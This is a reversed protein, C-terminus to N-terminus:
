WNLNLLRLIKDWLPAFVLIIVSLAVLWHATRYAHKDIQKALEEETKTPNAVREQFLYIKQVLFFSAAKIGSFILLFFVIVPIYLGYSSSACTNQWCYITNLTDKASFLVYIYLLAGIISLFALQRKMFYRGLAILVWGIITFWLISSLSSALAIDAASKPFDFGRYYWVLWFLSLGGMEVWGSTAPIVLWFILLALYIFPVITEQTNWSPTQVSAEISAGLSTPASSTNQDSM